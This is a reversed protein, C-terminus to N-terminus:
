KRNKKEVKSPKSIPARADRFKKKMSDTRYHKHVTGSRETPYLRDIADCRILILEGFKVPSSLLKLESQKTINYSCITSQHKLKSKWKNSYSTLSEIFTKLLTNYEQISELQDTLVHYSGDLCKLISQYNDGSFFSKHIYENMEYDGSDNSLTTQISKRLQSLTPRKISNVRTLMASRLRLTM